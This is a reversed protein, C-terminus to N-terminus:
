TSLFKSSRLQDADVLLSDSFDLAVSVGLHQADILALKCAEEVLQSHSGTRALM